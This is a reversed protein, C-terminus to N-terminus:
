RPTCAPSTKPFCTDGFCCEDPQCCVGHGCCDRGDPCCQPGGFVNCAHQGPPCGGCLGTTPDQCFQDAGCCAPGCVNSCCTGLTPHCVQGSDCCVGNCCKSLADCCAGNCIYDPGPCCNGNNDCVGACCVGNCCNFGATCCADGCCTDGPLCCNNGCVNRGSPCCGYRSNPDNEDVCTEGEDCCGDGPNFPDPVRCPHPCCDGLPSPLACTAECLGLTAWCLGHAPLCGIGLTAACTIDALFECYGFDRQCSVDRCHWCEKMTEPSPYYAPIVSQSPLASDFRGQLHGYPQPSVYAPIVSESPIRFSSGVQFHGYRRTSVYLSFGATFQPITM